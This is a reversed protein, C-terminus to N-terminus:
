IRGYTNREALFIPQRYAWHNLPDKTEVAPHETNQPEPHFRGGIISPLQSYISYAIVFLFLHDQLKLAERLNAVSARLVKTSDFKLAPRPVLSSNDTRM